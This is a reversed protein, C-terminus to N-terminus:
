VKEVTVTFEGRKHAAVADIMLLPEDKIVALEELIADDENDSEYFDINLPYKYRFTVTTLIQTM